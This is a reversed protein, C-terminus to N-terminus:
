FCCLFICSLTLLTFLPSRKIKDLVTSYNSNNYKDSSISQFSFIRRYPKPRAQLDRPESISMGPGRRVSERLNWEEGIRNQSSHTSAGSDM